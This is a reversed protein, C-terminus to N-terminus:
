PYIPYLYKQTRYKEGPGIHNSDLFPWKYGNFLNYYNEAKIIKQTAADNTIQLGRSRQIQIQDSTSTFVKPTNPM